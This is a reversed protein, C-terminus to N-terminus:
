SADKGLLFGYQRLRGLGCAVFLALNRPKGALCIGVVSDNSITLDCLETRLALGLSTALTVYSELACRAEAQGLSADNLLLVKTRM